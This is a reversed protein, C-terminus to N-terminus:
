RKKHEKRNKLNKGYYKTYDNELDVIIGGHGIREEEPPLTQWDGYEAELYKESEIPAYFYDDCFKIRKQYLFWQSRYTHEKGVISYSTDYCYETKSCDINILRDM